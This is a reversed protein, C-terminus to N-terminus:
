TRRIWLLRRNGIQKSVLEGEDELKRMWERAVEKSCDVHNAIQETHTLDNIEDLANLFDRRTFEEKQSEDQM